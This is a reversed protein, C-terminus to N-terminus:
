YSTTSQCQYYMIKKYSVIIFRTEKKPWSSCYIQPQLIPAYAAKLEGLRKAAYSDGLMDLWSLPGGSRPAFGWGLIAGVDAERVDVLVGDQLARVAKLAQAFMLRRQVEILNLDMGNKTYKVPLGQWIETRKGYLDYEYFDAKSKRGFRDQKFPWYLVDNSYDAV